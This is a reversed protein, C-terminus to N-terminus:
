WMRALLGAGGRPGKNPRGLGLMSCDVLVVLDPEPATGPAGELMAFPTVAEPWVIVPRPGGTDTAGGGSRGGATGGPLRLLPKPLRDSCVDGCCDEKGSGGM